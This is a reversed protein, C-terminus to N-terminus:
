SARGEESCSAAKKCLDKKDTPWLLASKTRIKLSTHALPSSHPAWGEATNAPPATRARAERDRGTSLRLGQTGM